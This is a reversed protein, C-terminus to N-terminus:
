LRRPETMLRLYVQQVDNQMSNNVKAVDKNSNIVIDGDLSLYLDPM